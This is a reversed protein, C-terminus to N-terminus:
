LDKEKYRITPPFATNRQTAAGLRSSVLLRTSPPPPPCAPAIRRSSARQEAHSAKVREPKLAVTEFPEFSVAEFLVSDIPLDSFLAYSSLM